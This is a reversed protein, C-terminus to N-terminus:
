TVDERAELWAQRWERHEPMVVSHPNQDIRFGQKFALTGSSPAIRSAQAAIRTDRARRRVEEFHDM